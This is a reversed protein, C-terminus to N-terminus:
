RVGLLLMALLLFSFMTLTFGLYPIVAIFAIMLAILGLRRAHFQRPEILRRLSLSATGRYLSHGTRLVFLTVLLLLLSGLFMGNARAEWPLDWVTSIYYIAFSGALLPVILDGGAPRKDKSDPKDM